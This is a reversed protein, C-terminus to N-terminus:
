YAFMNTNAPIEKGDATMVKLQLMGGNNDFYKVQIPHLGKALAKQGTVERVSHPGDNDVVQEGDITLTSGDDSILNFTYIADEPANFYGSIVLGINGKAEAPITVESIEYTGNVPAKEIDACKNGKFEHWVAQLGKKLPTAEAAPAYESKIYRTKVIDGKKGNPRFTRFTFDTTEPVKIPETYRPSELTPISGDTTYHIEVSPDLCTITVNGEGIFANTNNFGELDPMRYNVGMINLRPFQKVLRETFGDWSKVSPDSWAQESLAMMRPMIMYQAREFSPIYECWLNAQIGLILAKQADNLSELMPNFNYVGPLSNKDQQYDFYFNTNPSMIAHNGQATADPVSQPHWSRWWMITATPSLGGELIEDWGIMEKGNENFFKEMDHVFWAQLEEETKLGNDKMRKQCDPCKKWNTKEVEDAGLHIYKYPFLPIIESYVNKCFELASDKGPCVPSSFTTGWGTQNFCSVGTYNSVAALMHGPMDIEPIVDIGRVGAYEVIEKIDNQTYFGGYLTDGQTIRLKEAPIEYDPNDQVKALRMCERDHNNFTRWAGKETLLPYRKIEVRWGQDDTLHWHFKNLKYLAMMDLLEKVEEKTSFHRSVDLMLGRWGFRPADTIQVAPVSWTIDSVVEPSEIEAPLLQRLSEIGSIVGGYTNGKIQVKGSSVDLTYAGENQGAIDSVALSIDGDGERVNYIYGTSRSLLGSLYNAAPLLQKDAVGITMGDKLTFEGNANKIEKPIPIISVDHSVPTTPSCASLLLAGTVSCAAILQRYM